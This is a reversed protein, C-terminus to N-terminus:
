LLFDLEIIIIITFCPTFDEKMLILIEIMRPKDLKITFELTRQGNPKDGPPFSMTWDNIKEREFETILTILEHVSMSDRIEKCGFPKKAIQFVGESMIKKKSKKLGIAICIPCTKM